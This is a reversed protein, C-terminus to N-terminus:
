VGLEEMIHYVTGKLYEAATRPAVKGPLGRAWVVPVGLAQAAGQDVGGPESALDMVWAGERLASLEEVGLLPAPVTNVVLHPCHLWERMGHLPEAELGLSAALARQAPSRALVRVRAGLASLRLALAQGVRGFGLIWIRANHITIPLRGMALGIAGEATPIANLLTLEERTYYDEVRLGRQRAMTRLEDRILGGCLLQGPAMREVVQSVQVRGEWLPTYVEGEPKEAPLPLVVCRADSIGELGGQEEEDLGYTHVRHGDDRLLKALIRQRQDGGVIWIHTREM